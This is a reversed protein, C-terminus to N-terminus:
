KKKFHEEMRSIADVTEGYLNGMEQRGSDPAYSAYECTNLINTFNDTVEKEMGKENMKLRINDKNLEAVPIVLKDSLYTWVAKMVEEYFQKKKGEELFKLALRLRKQAVKNAKKTKVFALDANEKVHKRFYIFLIAAIILPILFLMWFPLTGFWPRSEPQLKVSGTYLYRIDKALPTVDEKGTFNEVVAEGGEGKTVNIKYAPTRLTRYTKNNLDFYSLEASPIDFKGSRRPIFMYEITKTGSVGGSGSSFKNDVKPDYVEFGDPFKIEPNKLLKMNGNGSIVVKITAAQNTKLNGSSLTSTLNFNGVAGSFTAPKGALPLESVKVTVASATLTKEVNTYSDFFDDFISRVQAKNQLRLLATFSAKGIEIEGTHQPFLVAQYLVVTGYSRGKYTEASLQKNQSQEIDQKLFGNFDPLKAGTFQAVDLLTYLKYTVSIAEQEYINTKSVITRVFISESTVRQTGGGTVTGGENQKQANNEANEVKITLDNSYIKEGDVVISAGPIKFTGTKSPMLTLTYSLNTASSKKGNIIQTYSSRSEFPGALIEFFQFDPAQLDKAAANVSYILQFPTEVYAVDPASATFEVNEQANVNWGAMIALVSVIFLVRKM